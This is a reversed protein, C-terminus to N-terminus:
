LSTKLKTGAKERKMVVGGAWVVLSGSDQGPRKGAGMSAIFTM